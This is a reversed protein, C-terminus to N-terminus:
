SGPRAARDAEQRRIAALPCGDDCTVEQCLPCCADDWLRPVDDALRLLQVRDEAGRVQEAVVRLTAAVMTTVGEVSWTYSTITPFDGYRPRDGPNM